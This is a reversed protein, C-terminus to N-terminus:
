HGPAFYGMLDLILHAANSTFAAISGNNTPVIAANSTIFGDAANLTSVLPTPVGDPWMGLYGLYGVQPIATANLVFAAASSPTSCPSSIIPFSRQGALVPGGLAGASSRTDLVRCPTIGHYMLGGLGPPAFYGNIDLIVDAANSTYVNIAGAAGAGLIAANAVITGTSANLTSVLPRSAGAPWTSLFTLTTKPVATFNLSYAAANSPVGCNSSQVPALRTEQAAVSPGGLPSAALRTDMVRCPTMPYFALAGPTYPAVFYGNVDIIVDADDTVFVSVAGNSGAPVIVANAKIRGDPSNMTSALPRPQGAPWVTIYGLGRHPLVTINLSYALPTSSFGCTGSSIPFARSSSAPIFPSGFAGAPYRTDVVRCPTLPIFLLGDPQAMTMRFLFADLGGGTQAQFPGSVPFDSSTTQGAVFLQEGTTLAIANAADSGAGGIYETQVIAGDLGIQTVFADYFGHNSTQTAATGPFNTSATYGGVYVVGSSTVAIASAVDVSNGGLYSSYVLTGTSGAKCVFVDSSGGSYATQWAKLLPFDTSSTTGAIYVNGAPDLAIAGGSEQFGTTGGAGGVYTSFLLGTGAANIKALFADQNGGPVPQFANVVLFDLSTTEGTIYAEGAANVAIARAREDAGGGVYAAYLLATGTTNFKIVFADSGAAARSQYSVVTRFASSSTTAGAVYINGAADLAIGNGSESGDGGFYTSFLLGGFPDLKAIFADSSGTLGPKYANVAPFDASTTSGTLFANGSSDVALGLARDDSSGGLYTCYVLTRGDPQFKAVFADVGRVPGIRTTTLDTSDTYGAVYVNGSSDTAVATAIDNGARGFYTSSILPDIILDQQVDYAGIDFVVTGDAVRRFAAPVRQRIGSVTQYVEPAAERLIGSDTNLVLGGTPEVELRKMGSYLLKIQGPNAGAGVRFECKLGQRTVDYVADIGAYLGRYVIGSYAPIGKAWTEPTHGQYVNVTAPLRHLAEIRPAQAGGFRLSIASRGLHFEVSDAAFGARMDGAAATYLFQPPAQGLNPTFYPGPAAFVPSIAPILFCIPALRRIM